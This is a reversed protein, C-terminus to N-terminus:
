SAFIELLSIFKKGLVSVHLSGSAKQGNKGEAVCTYIGEDTNRQVDTVILTGNPRVQQRHNYPL